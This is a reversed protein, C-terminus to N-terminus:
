NKNKIKSWYKQYKIENDNAQFDFFRIDQIEDPLYQQSVWHNDFDHPYQYNIGNGLKKASNYHSDKLHKPIEFVNGQDILDSAKKMALYVSNSKPAIALEVLANSIALMGEPLGLREFVEIANKVKIAVLPNALGVDEYASALMRRFLGDFDGSKVILTGYYLTADIDSGRISKHLASLFDYHFDGNRDSHFQINPVIAKLHEKTINQEDILSLLQLNNLAARFDGGCFNCFERLLLDSINIKPFHEKIIQKLKNFIEEQKLKYFQLIQMRSRLAPNVRFYPNETTTSYVVIKDFEIYSLLIDQKDKNLRHIEDIIILDKKELIDVMKQKSDITSNFYGYELGLENALVIASSTKGTGPPGYFLFSTKLGLSVVKQFLKKLHHQGIIDDVKQPRLTNALNKM